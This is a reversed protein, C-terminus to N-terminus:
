QPGELRFFQKTKGADFPISATGAGTSDTSVTGRNEAFSDLGTSGRVLYATSPRGSFRIVFNGGEVAASVIKLEAATSGNVTVTITSTVPGGPTNLTITYTTTTSPNLPIVANGNVTAVAGVGNDVTVSTVDAGVKLTLSTGEGPELVAKAAKAHILGTTEGWWAARNAAVLSDSLDGDANPDDLQKDYVIVEDIQGNWFNGDFLKNSGIVWAGESYEFLLDPDYTTGDPNVGDKSTGAYVGDVYWRIEINIVDMVAVIHSWAAGPVTLDADKRVGGGFNARVIGNDDVTLLQRGTGNLDQQVVIARNNGSTGPNNKVVAEITFGQELVALDVIRDTLIASSGGFSAAGDIFGSAGANVAPGTLTGNHPVANEASDVILGSGTAENFRFWAVPSAARVAASYPTDPATPRAAATSPGILNVAELSLDTAAAADIDTFGQLLTSEHLVTSGSKLRVTTPTSFAGATVKWHLRVKAAAPLSTAEFGQIVPLTLQQYAVTLDATSTGSPTVATLRYTTTATPTVTVLAQGDALAVAGLGNDISASTVDPGVKVILQTSDGTKVTAAAPTFQIIGNTESYWANRHATIRSDDTLGDGNPDDLLRPYVAIDDVDGKFFESNFTKASGIVWQGASAELLFDPNFTSNNPNRGDLTSGIKVGDLYWRIEATGPATTGPDVVLVLHSWVDTPLKQDADKKQSAGGGLQSYITGDQNIGLIVRGTGEVDTQSVLVNAGTTGTRRRVVAEITFGNRATVPDAPVPALTGPNIVTGGILASGGGFNGAGDIFGAAGAVSPGIVNGDFPIANEASDVVQAAGASENFRYWASPASERVVATFPTDAEIGATATTTGTGNVATLAFSAASDAAIDAFGALGSPAHIVTSPNAADTISITTPNSLGGETVNWHLRLKNAGPLRTVSFGKVVPATLQLPTVSSANWFLARTVTGAFSGANDVDFPAGLNSGANNGSLGGANAKSLTKVSLTDSGSWNAPTGSIAFSNLLPTVGEPGAIIELTGAHNWSASVSYAVGAELKGIGSQVAIANLSTDNLSTPLTGDNSSQKSILTPVGAVLYLGSGNTTGGIEILLKTGNLDSANPTFTINFTFGKAHNHEGTDEILPVGSVHGSAANPGNGGDNVLGRVDSDYLATAPDLAVLISAELSAPLLSVFTLASAANLLTNM